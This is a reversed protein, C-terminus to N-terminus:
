FEWLKKTHNEERVEFQITAEVTQDKDSRGASDVAVDGRVCMTNGAAEKETSGVQSMSIIGWQNRDQWDQAVWSSTM